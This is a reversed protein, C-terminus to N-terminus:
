ELSIVVPEDNDGEQKQPTDDLCIVDDGQSRGAKEPTRNDDMTLDVLGHSPGIVNNEHEYEDNHVDDVFGGGEPPESSYLVQSCLLGSGSVGCERRVPVVIDNYLNIM